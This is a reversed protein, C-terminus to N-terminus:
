RGAQIDGIAGALLHNMMSLIDQASREVGKSKLDAGVKVVVRDDAAGLFEPAILSAGYDDAAAGTLGMLGAAWAGLAKNRRALAKFRLEEDHIYKGEFGEERKDFTTM